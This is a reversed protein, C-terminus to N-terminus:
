AGVKEFLANFTIRTSRSRRLHIARRALTRWLRPAEGELNRLALGARSALETLRAPSVFLRADHTGRPVLGLGEAVTVALLRAVRTANITNVFAFGGPRLLRAAEALAAGPQEVHEIVDSLLVLDACGTALPARLLDGQVFGCPRASRRAESSAARLSGASRDVGVVLKAREALPIGLLGGGCGLDVVLGLSAEGLLSRLRALQHEKVARLSRFARSDASWWQDAHREYLELDNRRASM